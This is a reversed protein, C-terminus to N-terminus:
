RPSPQRKGAEAVRAKLLKRVLAAPLPRKPDFHLASKTKDYGKVEAALTALTTGSFPFYSCGKSTALFGAVVHGSYRFAPMSYSICEEAEPLIALIRQRLTQLAARRDPSVTALYADITEPKKTLVPKQRASPSSALRFAKLLVAKVGARNADAPSRLTIFRFRKGDGALIGDGDELERGQPFFLAAHDSFAGIAVAYGDVGDVAFRVLKWMASKSRPPAGRYALERTGKPAAAKVATRAAQVMARVTPRLKQM